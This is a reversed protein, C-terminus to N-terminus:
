AFYRDTRTLVLVVVEDTPDTLVMMGAAAQPVGAHITGVCFGQPVFISNVVTRLTRAQDETMRHM